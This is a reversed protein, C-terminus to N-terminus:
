TELTAPNAQTYILHHLNNFSAERGVKLGIREAVGRSPVNAPLIISIIRPLGILEFAHDRIAAAAESAIGRRWHEKHVHWGIEVDRVGEVVQWLLGCEGLFTGDTLREIAWIGYGHDAYSLLNRELWADVKAPSWPEPYYSMVEPDGLMRNLEPLDAANLQRLGLRETRIIYTM